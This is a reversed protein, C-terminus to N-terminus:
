WTDRPTVALISARWAALESEAEIVAALRTVDLVLVRSSTLLRVTVGSPPLPRGDDGFTGVFQGSAM